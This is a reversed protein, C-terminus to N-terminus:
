LASGQAATVSQRTRRSQAAFADQPRERAENLSVGRTRHSPGTRPFGWGCACSSIINKESSRRAFGLTSSGSCSVDQFKQMLAQRGVMACHTESCPNPYGVFRAIQLFMPGTKVYLSNCVYVCAYVVCWFVYMCAYMREGELFRGFCCIQM